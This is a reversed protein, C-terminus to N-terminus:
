YSFQMRQYLSRVWSCSIHFNLYKGSKEPNLQVLIMLAGWVVHINIAVGTTHFSVIMSCLKLNLEVDVLLPRSHM